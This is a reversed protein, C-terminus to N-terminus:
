VSAPASAPMPTFTKIRVTRSGNLSVRAEVTYRGNRPLRWQSTSIYSAENAPQAGDDAGGLSSNLVRYNRSECFFINRGKVRVNDMTVSASTVGHPVGMPANEIPQGSDDTVTALALQRVLVEPQECVHMQRQKM